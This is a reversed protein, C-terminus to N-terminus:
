PTPEEPSSPPVLETVYDLYQPTMEYHVPGNFGYRQPKFREGNDLIVRTATHRAVTARHEHNISSGTRRVVRVTSGVALWDPHEGM